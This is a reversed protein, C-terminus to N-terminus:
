VLGHRYAYATAAARSPLDLKAFMNQVHRAVTHESIVLEAAIERNTRGTAVLRLVERERATLGTRAPTPPTTLATANALDPRAGLREFAACAADLELRAADEDGMARCALAVRVGARAVDYPMDLARWRCAAARLLPLAEGAAGEALLVAGRAYDADARRPTPTDPAEAAVALERSADAAASTKGAALYVEVAAALVVPRDIRGRSEEILRAVAASAAGVDGQALRLLAFGPAPERGARSASRYAREAEDLEGRLRHLEGRQYFALGLAPHPPDALRRCALEAEALADPWSGQAQLVQARHVLCQGRYPVLDPQAACWSDLAQTWTAARKLDSAAMCTEVVACYVIGTVIPSCVTATVLVMVEDLLTMSRGSEGLVLAAQGQSLVGLARLDEDGCRQAVEVIEAALTAATPGDDADLAALFVPLRLYGRGVGDSGAVLREAGALWGSARAGEGRLMLAIGLWFACRAAADVQGLRVHERHAEAWARDSEDDRGALHAAVALREVDEVDTASALLACAAGWARRDFAARGQAVTGNV